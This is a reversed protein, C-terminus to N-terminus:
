IVHSRGSCLEEQSGHQQVLPECNVIIEDSFQSGEKNAVVFVAKYNCLDPKSAVLMPRNDVYPPLTDRALFKFDADGDRNQRCLLFGLSCLNGEGNGRNAGISNPVGASM